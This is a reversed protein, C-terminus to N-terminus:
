IIVCCSHLATHHFAVPLRSTFLARTGPVSVQQLSNDSTVVLGLVTCQGLRVRRCVHQVRQLTIQAVAIITIVSFRNQTNVCLMMQYFAM